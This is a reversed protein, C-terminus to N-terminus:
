GRPRGLLWGLARHLGLASLLRRHDAIPGYLRDLLPRLLPADLVRATRHFGAARYAEVFVEIGHLWRGTEDRAHIRRMLAERTPAGPADLSFGAASCDTMSLRHGGDRAALAEMETTCIPCSRDYFVELRGVPAPVTRESM